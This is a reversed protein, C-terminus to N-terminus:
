WCRLNVKQPFVPMRSIELTIMEVVSKGRKLVNWEEQQRPHAFVTGM